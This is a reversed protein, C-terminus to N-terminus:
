KPKAADTQSLKCKGEVCREHAECARDSKCSPYVPYVQAVACGALLFSVGLWCVKTARLM